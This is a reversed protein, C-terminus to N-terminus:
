RPKCLRLRSVSAAAHRASRPCHRLPRVEVSASVNRFPLPIKYFDLDNKWQVLDESGAPRRHRSPACNRRRSYGRPGIRACGRHRVAGRKQAGRYPPAATTTAEGQFSVVVRGLAHAVGVFGFTHTTPAHLYQPPEPCSTDATPRLKMATSHWMVACSIASPRSRRRQRM